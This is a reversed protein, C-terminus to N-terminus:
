QGEPKEQRQVEFFRRLFGPAIVSLPNIRLVPSSAKGNILFPMAFLGEYQSGGLLRGFIPVQSFLNNLAYAPVLSGKLDVKDQAYDLTGELSGGVSAGWMVAESLDLRGPRRTFDARLKTFDVEEPNLRNPAISGTENRNAPTSSAAFQQLAPEGRLVFDRIQVFGSQRDAFVEIDAAMRGGIMRPYFDMFRLLSGADRTEVNLVLPEAGPTQTSVTLPQAGFRGKTTFRTLRGSRKSAQVEAASLLEGGFGVLVTTQLDFDLDLAKPDEIKGVQFGKLFPRIDFSNGRLTFKLLNRVREVQLRANDGPSLKISALDAKLLQQHKGLEIIGRAQIAGLDAELGELIMGEPRTLLTFRASAAQGARKILGPAIGEVKARTLDLEVKMDPAASSKNNLSAMLVVGMPGTLVSKTDFGRKLRQAEDMVLRLTANLTENGEGRLEIQAPLGSIRADGKILLGSPKSTLQFTGGELKEGKVINDIAVGKLDATFDVRTDQPGPKEVLRLSVRARGDLQGDAMAVEPPIPPAYPRLSPANLTAFFAELTGSVPLVMDLTAPKLSTDAITFQGERLKLPMVPKALIVANEVQVKAQRGTIVGTVVADVLPAADPLPAVRGEEVRFRIDLASDPIPRQSFADQLAEGALSSRVTLQALRGAQVHEGVWRRVPPAISIPWIRFAARADIAKAEVNTEITGGADLSFFGSVTVEGAGQTFHLRNLTFSRLSAALAGDITLQNLAVIPESPSPRDIQATQAALALAFGGAEGAQPTLIGTLKLDTESLRIDMQRITIAPDDANMEVALDARELDFPPIDPDPLSVRGKTLALRMEAQAFAQQPTLSLRFLAEVGMDPSLVPIEHGSLVALARINAGMTMVTLRPSQGDELSARFGLTEARGLQGIEGVMGGDAQRSLAFTGDTLLPAAAHTGPAMRGVAIGRGEVKGLLSLREDKSSLALAIGALAARALAVQEMAPRSGEGEPLLINAGEFRVMRPSVTLRWLASAEMDVVLKDLSVYPGREKRGISLGNIMMVPHLGSFAFSVGQMAVPHDPGVASELISVVQDRMLRARDEGGILFLFGAALAASLVPLLVLAAVMWRWLRRKKVPPLPLPTIDAM